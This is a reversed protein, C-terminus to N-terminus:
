ELDLYTELFRALQEPTEKRGRAIWKMFIANVVACAVSSTYEFFADDLSIRSLVKRSHADLAELLIDSRHSKFIIELFDAHSLWYNLSFRLFDSRKTIDEAHARELEGALISAAYSLVDGPTDFLRYFTARSVGSSKQIDTVSISEFKKEKLCASLGLVIKQASERARRDESIHYMNLDEQEKEAFRFKHFM